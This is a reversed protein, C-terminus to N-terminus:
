DESMDTKTTPPIGSTKGCNPGSIDLDVVIYKEKIAKKKFISKM